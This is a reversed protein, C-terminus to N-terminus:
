IRNGEHEIFPSILISRRLTPGVHTARPAGDLGTRYSSVSAVADGVSARTPLKGHASTAELNHFLSGHM